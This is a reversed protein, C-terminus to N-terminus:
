EEEDLLDEDKAQKIVSSCSVGFKLLTRIIQRPSAGASIDCYYEVLMSDEDFKVTVFVYKRNMQNAFRVRRNESASKNAVRSTFFWISNKEMCDVIIFVDGIVGYLSKNKNPQDKSYKFEIDVGDLWKKIAELNIKETEVFTPLKQVKDWANDGDAIVHYVFVTFYVFVFLFAFVFRFNKM